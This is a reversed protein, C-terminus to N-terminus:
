ISTYKTALGKRLFNMDLQFVYKLDIVVPLILCYDIENIM